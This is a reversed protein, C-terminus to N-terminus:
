LSQAGKNELSQLSDLFCFVFFVFFVSQEKKGLFKNKEDDKSTLIYNFAITM